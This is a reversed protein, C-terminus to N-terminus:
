IVKEGSYRTLMKHLRDQLRAARAKRHQTRNLLLNMAANAEFVIIRGDGTICCDIGFYELQLREAIEVFASRLGPLVDKELIEERAKLGEWGERELMFPRSAGHVKWHPGYLAHRLIVEGDIVAIRQKHYLGEGDQYDIFQILYFDRGDFPLAHLRPYDDHSSVRLMSQGGHRGAERIIFPFRFGEATARSFVEDPSRPRFRQTRPVVVGPIGQLKQATQERSNQLVWRPHNIVTTNLQECLEVCRELAGQHTDPDAIQNFILSPPVRFEISKQKVGKGFILLSAAVGDKLPLRHEVSANGDMLYIPRGKDDLSVGITSVDNVGSVFLIAM